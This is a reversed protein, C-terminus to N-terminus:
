QTTGLNDKILIKIFDNCKTTYEFIILLPEDNDNDFAKQDSRLRRLSKVFGIEKLVPERLGHVEQNLIQNEDTM